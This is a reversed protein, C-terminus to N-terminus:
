KLYKSIFSALGNRYSDASAIIGDNHSGHIELFEKPQSAKEYLAKGYKFPITEDDPSHIV